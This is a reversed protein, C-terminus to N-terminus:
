RRVENSPAATPAISGSRSPNPRNQSQDGSQYDAVHRVGLLRRVETAPDLEVRERAPTVRERELAALFAAANVVQKRRTGLLPVGLRVAQDRVWEWGAGVMAVANAPGITLPTSSLM